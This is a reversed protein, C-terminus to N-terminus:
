DTARVAFSMSQKMHHFSNSQSGHQRYIEGHRLFIDTNPLHLPEMQQGSHEKCASDILQYTLPIGVEVDMLTIKLPSQKKGLSTGFHMEHSCDGNM